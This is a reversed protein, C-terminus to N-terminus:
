AHADGIKQLFHMLKGAAEDLADPSGPWERKLELWHKHLGSFRAMAEPELWYIEPYIHAPCNLHLTEIVLKRFELDSLGDAAAPFLLSIRFPYFGDHSAAAKRTPGQPRLLVHELLYYDDESLGGKKEPSADPGQGKVGLLHALKRKLGTVHRSDDGDRTYNFASFRKGTLDVIDKLFAIKNAISRGEFNENGRFFQRLASQTFREGYLGLQYDLVRNRRDAYHDFAAMLRALQSAMGELGGPYLAEVSSVDANDLVQHFYTRDLGEDVSFLRPTEHLTEMFNAMVQDFFLLYAKLQAAQAKREPSASDPVGYANLGYIDPLHNQISWYERINRYTGGPLLTGVWDFHKKRRKAVRHKYALRKLEEEVALPSVEYRIGSKVMRIGGMLRGTPVSSTAASAMDPADHCLDPVKWYALARDLVITDSPSGDADVFQLHHIGKVGKIRGIRGILDAISFDGRWPYLEADDIYGPGALIGDFLEELPTGEKHKEVYSHVPVSPCLYQMCEFYIEALIKAPERKGAIEIEGHLSYPIREVIEIGALDECLNRHELYIQHVRDACAQRAVDKDQAEVQRNLLIHIRYLGPVGGADDPRVWVNDIDAEYGLILKRYDDETVPHCPFIEDPRYLAQRQFDIHGDEHTLYDAVDFRTRYVLDTLAYCFAELITVGPDHLNYDTWIEGSTDQVIGIGERRLGDFDLGGQDPQIKRIFSEAM